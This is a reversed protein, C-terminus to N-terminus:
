TYIMHINKLLFTCHEFQFPKFTKINKKKLCNCTM